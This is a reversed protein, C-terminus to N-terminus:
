WLLISGTSCVRNKNHYYFLVCSARDHTLEGLLGFGYVIMCIFKMLETITICNSLCNSLKHNETEEAM